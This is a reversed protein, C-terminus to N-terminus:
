SNIQDQKVSYYEYNYKMSCIISIFCVFLICMIVIITITSLGNNNDLKM